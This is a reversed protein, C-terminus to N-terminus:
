AMPMAQQRWNAGGGSPSAAMPPSWGGGGRGRCSAAETTGVSTQRSCPSLGLGVRETGGPKMRM